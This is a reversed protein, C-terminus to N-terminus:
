PRHTRSPTDSTASPAPPASLLAAMARLADVCRRPTPAHLKIQGENCSLHAMPPVMLAYVTHVAGQPQILLPAGFPAQGVPRPLRQSYGTLRIGFEFQDILWILSRPLEGTLQSGLAAAPDDLLSCM